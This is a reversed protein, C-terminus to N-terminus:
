SALAAFAKYEEPATPNRALHKFATPDNTRMLAELVEESLSERNAVSSILFSNRSHVLELLAEDQTNPHQAIIAVAFMNYTDIAEQCMHNLLEGSLHRNGALAIIIGHRPVLSGNEHKRNLVTNTLLVQPLRRYGHLLLKQIQHLLYTLVGITTRHMKKPTICNDIQYKLADILKMTLRKQYRLTRSTLGPIPCGSTGIDELLFGLFM